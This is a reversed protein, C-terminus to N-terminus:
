KERWPIKGVWPLVGTELIEQIPLLNKVASGGPFCAEEWVGEGFQFGTDTKSVITSM